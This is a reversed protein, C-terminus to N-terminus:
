IKQNLEKLPNESPLASSSRMRYSDLDNEFSLNSNLRDDPNKALDDDEDHEQNAKFCM